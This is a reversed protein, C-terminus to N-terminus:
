ESSSYRPLLESEVHEIGLPTLECSQSSKHFEILRAKHLPQVVKSKFRPGNSYEIWLLLDGLPIVGASAHLLVLTQDRASMNTHLVRKIEGTSWILPTHREVLGTVIEQAEATTTSHFVRVLEAMVWSSMELVATADMQNPDVDGGTHGVGRNNRIEYLVPLMRPILIRLSRPLSTENELRACAQQLNRPKSPKKPYQEDALGRIITYVVECFKGGNLESPEWRRETFNQRIRQFSDLLPRRLGSPVAALATKPDMM